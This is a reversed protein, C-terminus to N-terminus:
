PRKNGGNPAFKKAMQALSRKGSGGAGQPKVAQTADGSATGNATPPMVTDPRRRKAQENLITKMGATAKFERSSPDVGFRADGSFL